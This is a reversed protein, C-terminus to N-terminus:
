DCKGFFDENFEPDLIAYDHESDELVAYDHDPSSVTRSVSPPPLNSQKQPHGTQAQDKVSTHVHSGQNGRSSPSGQSSFVTKGSSSRRQLQQQELLRPNSADSSRRSSDSMQGPSRKRESSVRTTSTVTPKKNSKDVVTTTKIGQQQSHTTPSAMPESSPSLPHSSSESSEDNEETDLLYWPTTTANTTAAASSSTNHSDYNFKKDTKLPSPQPTMVEVLTQLAHVTTTAVSSMNNDLSQKSWSVNIKSRREESDPTQRDMLSESSNSNAATSGASVSRGNQDSVSSRESLKLDRSSSRSPPNSSNSRFDSSRVTEDASHRKRKQLNGTGSDATGPDSIPSTLSHRNESMGQDESHRRRKNVKAYLHAVPDSSEDLTLDNKQEVRPASMKRDKTTPLDEDQMIMMLEKPTLRDYVGSVQADKAGQSKSTPEPLLFEELKTTQADNQSSTSSLSDYTLKRVQKAEGQPKDQHKPQQRSAKGTWTEHGGGPQPIKTGGSAISSPSTTGSRSKSESSSPPPPPPLPPFSKSSSSSSSSSSVPIRSYSLVSTREPHVIKSDSVARKNATQKTKQPSSKAPVSLLQLMRKHDHTSSSSQQPEGSKQSDLAAEGANRKEPASSRRHLEQHKTVSLNSGSPKKLSSSKPPSCSSASSATSSKRTVANGDISEYPHFGNETTVSSKNVDVGTAPQRNAAPVETKASPKKHVVDTSKTAYISTSTSNYNAAAAPGSSSSAAAASSLRRPSLVPIGSGQSPPAASKSSGSGSSSVHHGQPSVSTRGPTSARRSAASKNGGLYSPPPARPAPRHVPRKGTPPVSSSPPQQMESSSPTPQSMSLPISSTANSIVGPSGGTSFRHNKAASDSRSDHHHHSSSSRWPISSREPRRLSSPGNAARERQRRESQLTAGTSSVRRAKPPSPAKITSKWNSSNASDSEFFNLTDSPLGLERLLKTAEREFDAETM